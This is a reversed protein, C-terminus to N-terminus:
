TSAGLIENVQLHNLDPVAWDPKCAELDELTSGGTAVALTRAGIYKGCAVDKPTDGVVVVESGDLHYGLYKSAKEKAAAAILNRDENDNAFGGFSFKEWLSYTSLKRRAGEEINGTLLGIAPANPSSVLDDLMKVVGPFPGGESEDLHNDILRLYHEFFLDRNSISFEVKNWQCLERFLSYDTRGSFKTNETANSIGFASEFSEGFAKIGAGGTSILTGDIDFLIVRVLLIRAKM